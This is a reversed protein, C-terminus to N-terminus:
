VTVCSVFITDLLVELLVCAQESSFSLKKVWLRVFVAGRVILCRVVVVENQLESSHFSFWKPLQDTNTKTNTECQCRSVQCLHIEGKLTVDVFRGRWKSM